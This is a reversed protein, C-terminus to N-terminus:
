NFYNQAEPIDTVEIYISLMLRIDSVCEFARSGCIVLCLNQTCYNTLSVSMSCQSMVETMNCLLSYSGTATSRNRPWTGVTTDVLVVTTRINIRNGFPHHDAVTLKWSGSRILLCLGCMAQSGRTLPDKFSVVEVHALANQCFFAFLFSCQANKKCQACLISSPNLVVGTSGVAVSSSYSNRNAFLLEMIIDSQM